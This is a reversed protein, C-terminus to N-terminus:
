GTARASERTETVGAGDEPSASVRPLTFYFDSGEGVVSTVWIRGGLREVISRCIALGLGTGGRTRADTSDVQEFRAFITEIRDPPIGRGKDSVRFQVFAGDALAEVEVDTGPPAFKVANGILNVLTQLVRDPDVRVCGEARGTRLRVGADDAVVGMQAVAEEILDSVRSETLNMGTGADIREIDLIDNILRGLRDSGEVAVALMSTARPPMEGLAGGVLLGLSGRIATLPTRLEHSVISMFEDKLRDVERRDTIDRFTVVAGQIGDDETLPSATVEVPIARGGSGLYSDEEGVTALGQRIAQTVYCGDIPYPVGDSRPAHFAEHAVVGILESAQRGLLQEAAPNVFTVRGAEDVGYIGDAVSRLLLERQDTVATLDRTRQEVRRELDQRLKENDLILLVQRAGVALLVAVWVPFGYPTPPANTATVRAVIAAAVFLAFMVMTITVASSETRLESEPERPAAPRLAALAILGYGAIWILELPSGFAYVGRASQAAFILDGLAYLVLGGSILGLSPRDARGVRPILLIAVTAIIVDFVPLALAVAQRVPEEDTTALINGFIFIIAMYLVSGGVVVGDLIMRLTETRRRATSPFSLVGAVGAMLGALLALDGPLSEMQWPGLPQIYSYWVNGAIGFAIGLSMLRWARRRRGSSRNGRYVAAATACIGGALLGASSVLERDVLTAASLLVLGVALTAVLM